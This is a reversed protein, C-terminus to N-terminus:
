LNKGITADAIESEENAPIVFVKIKSGKKHISVANKKNKVPDLKLNLYSFYDCISKRLYYANEGIGATFSIADLGDMAAAYAGIYKAIRYALIELTLSARVNNNQAAAWLDRVDSSIESIGLLGSKKTLIEEIKAPSLKLKKILFFIIAPDIDGSRTGMPIGELPTFGMSTDICKGNKVATISSGNGLHCIVIKSKDKKLLQITKKSVYSHNTGHFGYRRIGLRKYFHYPLAYLYAKKLMSQHFATDFVAVQPVGPLLKICAKIAALNHPNHLPALSSLKQIAAMVKKNIVTARSYKAGGHVVRHGVADIQKLSTIIKQQLLIKLAIQLAKKHNTKLLNQHIKKSKWGADFFSKKLGIGDVIGKYLCSFDKKSEILQFKLSSSGANIVLILM